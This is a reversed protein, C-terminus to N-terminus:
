DSLHASAHANAYRTRTAHDPGVVDRFAATPRHEPTAPQRTDMSVSLGPTARTAKRSMSVILLLLWIVSDNDPHLILGRLPSM